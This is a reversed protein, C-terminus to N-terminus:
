YHLCETLYLFKKGCSIFSTLTEGNEFSLTVSHSKDVGTEFNYGSAIIRVPEQGKFIMYAFALPYEGLSTLMGGALEQSYFKKRQQYCAKAHMFNLFKPKGIAGTKIQVGIENWSPVFFSWLGQM